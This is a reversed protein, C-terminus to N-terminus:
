SNTVIWIAYRVADLLALEIKPRCFDEFGMGDTLEFDRIADSLGCIGANILDNRDIMVPAYQTVSTVMDNIMPLHMAILPNNAMMIEASYEPYNVFEVDRFDTCEDEHMLTRAIM